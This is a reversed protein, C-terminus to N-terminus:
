LFKRLTPNHISVIKTVDLSKEKKGLKELIGVVSNWDESQKALEKSHFGLTANGTFEWQAPQKKKDKQTYNLLTSFEAPLKGLREKVVAADKNTSNSANNGM